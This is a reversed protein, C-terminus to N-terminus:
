IEVSHFHVIKYANAESKSNEVLREVLIAISKVDIEALIIHILSYVTTSTIKSTNGIEKELVKKLSNDVLIFVLEVSSKKVILAVTTARAEIVISHSYERRLIQLFKDGLLLFQLIKRKTHSLM